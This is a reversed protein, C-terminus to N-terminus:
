HHLLPLRIGLKRWGRYERPLLNIDIPELHNVGPKLNNVPPLGKMALGINVAYQSIPLHSPCELVPMLPEIKYEIASQILQTIAPDNALEGTVFAPASPSFLQEPHGSNYFRVTRSLEDSLRQIRDELAVGEWARLIITRMIVPIGAIVLIIGWSEPEVDLILAEGRNVARALALPKLDVIYPRIGSQRLAQLERDLINRPVGLLFVDQEADKRSLVQWSLYLEKPSLPMEREAEWQIAENMLSPKLKPLNLIRPVSRLGTLGAIVRNRPLGMSEFLASIALGVASADSILTDKVLGPELPASDWREVQAGRTALVRVSSTEINLTVTTKHLLM